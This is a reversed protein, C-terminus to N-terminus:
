GFVERLLTGNRKLGRVETSEEVNHLSYRLRFSRSGSSPRRRHKSGCPRSAMMRRRGIGTPCPISLRRRSAASMTRSKCRFDGALKAANAIMIEM